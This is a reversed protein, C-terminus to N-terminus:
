STVSLVIKGANKNEEMRQHAYETDEWSFVSDVVPKLKGEEFLPICNKIFEHTLKSKYELSRNRLTSGKIALRKRLIPVLSAEKLSSGGMLALMVLRGDSALLDINKKWYPKGIFDIILDVSDKGLESKIVEAFDQEKYNVNIESGLAACLEQKRKAGSTTCVKSGRLQVALQIAATGVGSAGAHVLVCESDSLGGLWFLAQYATLFVEPIAAAEEYSFSDPVPIAMKAPIVCYQAYGGGPLLGFVRDGVEVNQVASGFGVVNGAMELGLISSAGKPPPYRGSKQLLDARNLATAEVKVLLDHESPVPKEAGGMVMVNKGNKEEVQLAKMKEM